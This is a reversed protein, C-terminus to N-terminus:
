FGDLVIWSSKYIDLFLCCILYNTWKIIQYLWTQLMATSYKQVLLLILITYWWLSRNQFYFDYLVSEFKLKIQGEFGQGYFMKKWIKKWLLDTHYSNLPTCIAATYIHFIQQLYRMIKYNFSNMLNQSTNKKM